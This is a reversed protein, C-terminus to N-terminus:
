WLFVGTIDWFYIPAGIMPPFVVCNHVCVHCCSVHDSIWKIIDLCISVFHFINHIVHASVNTVRHAMEPQYALNACPGCGRQDSVAKGNIGM